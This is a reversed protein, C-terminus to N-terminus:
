LHSKQDGGASERSRGVATLLAHRAIEDEVRDVTDAIRWAVYGDPRVLVVDREWIKRAHPETPLHVLALPVGTEKAATDFTELATGNTTFDILTLNLGYLDFISTKGDSLFLHPARHGPWTSPIYAKSNWDPEKTDSNLDRVIVASGPFRYDMEIGLEKHEGDNENIHQILKGRLQAGEESDTTLTSQNSLGRIWNGRTQHHEMHVGSMHVNHEAVPRRESEYSQLLDEGGYGNIVATLKWSIDYADGFGTNGGYGGTPIKQHAADGALFIRGETSRYHEAVAMSPTWIGNVIVEDM